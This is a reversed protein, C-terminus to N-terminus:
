NKMNKMNLYYFLIIFINIFYIYKYKLFLIESPALTALGDRPPWFILTVASM